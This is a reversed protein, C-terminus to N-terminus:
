SNIEKLQVAADSKNEFLQRKNLEDCTPQDISFTDHMWYVTQFILWFAFNLGSAHIVCPEMWFLLICKYLHRSDRRHWVELVTIHDYNKSRVRGSVRLAWNTNRQINELIAIFLSSYCKFFLSHRHTHRENPFRFTFVFFTRWIFGNKFEYFTKLEFYRTQSSQQFNSWNLFLIDVVIKYIFWVVVLIFPKQIM